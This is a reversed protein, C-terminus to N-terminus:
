PRHELLLARVIVYSPHAQYRPNRRAIARCRVRTQDHFDSFSAFVETRDPGGAVQAGLTAYANAQPNSQLSEARPGSHSGSCPILYNYWHYPLSVKLLWVIEPAM